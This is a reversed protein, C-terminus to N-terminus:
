GRKERPASPAMTGMSVTAAGSRRRARVACVHHTIGHHISLCVPVPVGVRAGRSAPMGGGTGKGGIQVRCTYAAM